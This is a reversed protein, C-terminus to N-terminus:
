PTYITAIEKAIAILMEHIVEDGAAIARDAKTDLFKVISTLEKDRNYEAAAKEPAEVADFPVDLANMNWNGGKALKVFQAKKGDYRVPGFTTFYRKLDAQFSKSVAAYLKSALTLDGSEAAHAFCSQATESIDRRVTASRGKLSKISAKIQTSNMISISM